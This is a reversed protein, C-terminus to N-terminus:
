EIQGDRKEVKRLVQSFAELERRRRLVGDLARMSAGEQCARLLGEKLRSATQDPLHEILAAKADELARAEGGFNSTGSPEATAQLSWHWTGKADVRIIQGLRTPGPGFCVFTDTKTEIWVPGRPWDPRDIPNEWDYPEQPDSM